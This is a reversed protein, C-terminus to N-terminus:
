RAGNCGPRPEACRWPRGGSISRGSAAATTVGYRRRRGTSESNGPRNRARRRIQLPTGASASSTSQHRNGIGARRSRPPRTQASKRPLRPENTRLSRLAGSRADPENPRSSSPEDPHPAPLAQPVRAPDSRSSRVVGCRRQGHCRARMPHPPSPCVHRRQSGATYGIMPIKEVRPLFAARARSCGAGAANPADKSCTLQGAARTPPHCGRGATM